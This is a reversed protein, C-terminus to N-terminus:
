DPRIGRAVEEYNVGELEMETEEILERIIAASEKKLLSPYLANVDVSGVEVEGGNPGNDVRWQEEEYREVATEILLRILDGAIEAGEGQM